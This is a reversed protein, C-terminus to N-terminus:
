RDASSGSSSPGPAPYEDTASFKAASMDSRTARAKADQAQSRLVEILEERRAADASILNKRTEINMIAQNFQEALDAATALSKSERAVLKTQQNEFRAVTTLCVAVCLGLLAFGASSLLRNNPLREDTGLTELARNTARRATLKAYLVGVAIVILAAVIAILVIDLFKMMAGEQRVHALFQRPLTTVYFHSVIYAAM